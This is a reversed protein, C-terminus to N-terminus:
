DKNARIEIFKGGITITYFYRVDDKFDYGFSVVMDPLSMFFKDYKFKFVIEREILTKITLYSTEYTPYCIVDGKMRRSCLASKILQHAKAKVEKAFNTFGEPMEGIYGLGECKYCVGGDHSTWDLKGSGCCKTCIESKTNKM